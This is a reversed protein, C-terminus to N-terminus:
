DLLGLKLHSGRFLGSMYTIPHLLKIEKGELTHTKEQTLVCAWAYNSADTFLVYSLNPDPYTLIPDTM